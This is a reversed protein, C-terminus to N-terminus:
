WPVNAGHPHRKVECMEMQNNPDHHPNKTKGFPKFPPVPHCYSNVKICLVEIELLVREANSDSVSLIVKIGVVSLRESYPYSMGFFLVLLQFFM